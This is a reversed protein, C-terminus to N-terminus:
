WVPLYAGKSDEIVLEKVKDTHFIELIKKIAPDNKYDNHVAILNVYPNDASVDVQEIAIADSSPNLGSDVAIGSNIAAVAVDPLAGPFIAAALEIIEFKRPNEVIDNLTPFKADNLKILGNAQLLQLARGGNTVDNPIAIKDGDNLDKLSTLKKSYIGLPAIYTKGIESINYGFSEIENELYVQHQFATLQLEKSHLAANPMKYDSFAVVEVTIGEKAAEEKVYNWVVSDTGVIGVKVTTLEKETSSKSSCGVLVLLSLAVLLIKKM